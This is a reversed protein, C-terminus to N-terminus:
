KAGAELGHSMATGLLICSFIVWNQNTLVFATKLYNLIFFYCVLCEWPFSLPPLPLSLSPSLSLLSLSPSLSPLSLPSLPPSLPLSLSPSLSPPSLPSLPPSLPSLPLSPPSLPSLPPSLPLSPSLSLKNKNVVKKPGYLKIIPSSKLEEIKGWSWSRPEDSNRIIYMFFNSLESQNLCICNEPLETYLFLLGSMRIPWYDFFSVSLWDFALRPHRLM